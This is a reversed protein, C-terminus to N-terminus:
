SKEEKNQLIKRKLRRNRLRLWANRYEMVENEPIGISEILIKKDVIELLDKIDDHVRIYQDIFSFLDNIEKDSVLENTFIDPLLINEAERPLIELVGAGYSRGELESFVMSISTYYAVVARKQNRKELFQVRHMTDTSVANVAESNLVFKPYLYNRRLFFADPSWVSPVKYWEKRISCKYNANQGLKEGDAIYDSIGKIFNKREVPSLDLLYTKAGSLINMEWDKKLFVAGKISVSRAILPRCYRELKYKDATNKDICFYDNNGTTIGVEFKAIKSFPLFRDDQMALHIQKQESSKLFYKTWKGSQFDAETYKYNDLNDREACSIDPFQIIRVEHSSVESEKEGLLIVVEQSINDFIMSDFVLVTIKNLERVLFKRLDDSYKVQLMEAPLVFGIRSNEAMCSVCAVTFSVWTNILKNSKMGNQLLILNQESRQESSLYQYRIYPPNGLVAHYKEKCIKERFVHYFDDNIITHHKCKQSDSDKVLDMEYQVSVSESLFRDIEVACIKANESCPHQCISEVFIGNGASPELISEVPAKQNLVWGTIYDAVNKPTFYRGYLKKDTINEKHKM